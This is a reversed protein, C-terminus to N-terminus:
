FSVSFDDWFAMKSPDVTIHCFIVEHWTASWCGFDNGFVCAIFHVSEWIKVKSYKIAMKSKLRWRSLKFSKERSISIDSRFVFCASVAIKLIAEMQKSFRLLWNQFNETISETKVTMVIQVFEEMTMKQFVRLFLTDYIVRLRNPYVYVHDIVLTFVSRFEILQHRQWLRWCKQTSEPKCKQGTLLSREDYQQSEDIFM